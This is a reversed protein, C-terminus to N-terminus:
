ILIGHLYIKAYVNIAARPLYITFKVLSFFPYQFCFACLNVRSNRPNISGRVKNYM